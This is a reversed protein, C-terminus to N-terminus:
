RKVDLGTFKKGKKLLNLYSFGPNQVASRLRCADIKARTEGFLIHAYVDLIV